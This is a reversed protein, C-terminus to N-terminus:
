HGDGLINNSPFGETRPCLQWELQANAVELDGHLVDVIEEGIDIRM